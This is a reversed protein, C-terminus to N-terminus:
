NWGNEDLLLKRMAVAESDKQKQFKGYVSFHYHSYVTNNGERCLVRLPGGLDSQATSLWDFQMTDRLLQAVKPSVFIHKTAGGIMATRLMALHEADLDSSTLKSRGSTPVHLIEAFSVLKAHEPAFGIRAFSQHYRKGDGRYGPLLFPHHVGHKQWFSVADQHYEVIKPFIASREIDANYNADLGVFLFKAM